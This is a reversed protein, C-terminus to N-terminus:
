RGGRQGRGRERHRAELRLHAIVSTGSFLGGSARRSFGAGSSRGSSRGSSPRQHSAQFVQKWLTSEWTEPCGETKSIEEWARGAASESTQYVTTAPPAMWPSIVKRRAAAEPVRRAWFSRQSVAGAGSPMVASCLSARSSSRRWTAPRAEVVSAGVAPPSTLNWREAEAAGEQDESATTQRCVPSSAAAVGM